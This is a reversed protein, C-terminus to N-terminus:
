DESQEAMDAEYDMWERVEEMADAMTEFAELRWMDM